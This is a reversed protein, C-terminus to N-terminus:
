WLCESLLSKGLSNHSGRAGFAGSQDFAGGPHAEQEPVMLSGM